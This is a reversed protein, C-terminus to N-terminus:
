DTTEPVLSDAINAGSLVLNCTGFLLYIGRGASLRFDVLHWVDFGGV